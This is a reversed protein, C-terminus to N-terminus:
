LLKWEKLIRRTFAEVNKEPDEAWKKGVALTIMNVPLDFGNLKYIVYSRWDREEWQYNAFEQDTKWDLIGMGEQILAIALLRFQPSELAPPQSM